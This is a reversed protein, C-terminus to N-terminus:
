AVGQDCPCNDCVADCDPVDVTTRGEPDLWVPTGSDADISDVTRIEQAREWLTHGVIDDPLNALDAAACDQEELLALADDRHERAWRMVAQHAACHWADAFSWEYAM